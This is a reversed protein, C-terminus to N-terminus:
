RRPSADDGCAPSSSSFAPRGLDSLGSVTRLIMAVPPHITPFGARRSVWSPVYSWRCNNTRCNRLLGLGGHSRSLGIRRQRAKITVKRIATVALATASTALSRNEGSRGSTQRSRSSSVNRLTVILARQRVQRQFGLGKWIRRFRTDQPNMDSKTGFSRVDLCQSNRMIAGGPTASKPRRFEGPVFREGQAVAPRLFGDIGGSASGSTNVRSSATIVSPTPLFMTRDIRCQPRIVPMRSSSGSCGFLRPRWM